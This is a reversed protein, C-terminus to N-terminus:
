KDKVRTAWPVLCPCPALKANAVANDILLDAHNDKLWQAKAEQPPDAFVVLEDYAEGVGLNRLYETKAELVELTVPGSYGTLIVVRNGSARLAQMLMLYLQPDSDITGDIDFGILM